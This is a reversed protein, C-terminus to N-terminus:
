RSEESSQRAVADGDSGREKSSGRLRIMPRQGPADPREEPAVEPGPNEASAAEAGPVVKVVRLPPREVRAGDAPATAPVASAARTELEDLRSVIRDDKSQLRRIEESLEVLRKEIAAQGSSCGLASM